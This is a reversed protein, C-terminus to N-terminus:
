TPDGNRPGEEESRRAQEMAQLLVDADQAGSVGVKRNFIFFPVGEIGAEKASNAEAEIRAVDEDSLVRLALRARTTLIPRAPTPGRGTAGTGSASMTPETV